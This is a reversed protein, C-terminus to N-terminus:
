RTQGDRRGGVRQGGVRKGGVSQGGAIQGGAIQGGAGWVAMGEAEGQVRGRTEGGGPWTQGERAAPGVPVTEVWGGGAGGQVIEGVVGEAM